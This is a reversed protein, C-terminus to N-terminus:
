LMCHLAKLEYISICHVKDKKTEDKKRLEEYERNTKGRKSRKM